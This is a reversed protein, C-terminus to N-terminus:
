RIEQSGGAPRVEAQSTDGEVGRAPPESPSDPLGPIKLHSRLYLGGAVSLHNSDLMLIDEGAIARCWSADCLAPLPSVVTFDYRSELSRFYDDIFQYRDRVSAVPQMVCRGADRRHFRAHAVCLPVNNTFEPVQGLIISTVKLKNLMALTQSLGGAADGGPRGLAKEIDLRHVVWRSALLVLRLSKQQVLWDSVRKNFQRCSQPISTDDVFPPCGPFGFVIGSVHNLEALISIAPIYNAAHSDGWLVLGYGGRNPQGLSCATGYRFGEVSIPNCYKELGAEALDIAVNQAALVSEDARSPFGLTFIFSAGALYLAGAAVAGKFLTITNSFSGRRFPTEVYRWSLYALVFSALVILLRLTLSLNDYVYLHAFSFLPWHVLYLSYSILGIFRFPGLGLTNSIRNDFTGAGIILAAGACPLLATMAPFPTSSDYLSVACVVAALGLAATLTAFRRFVILPPALSLAAGILLEWMRYYSVYFADKPHGELKLQALLLSVAALAVIATLVHKSPLVRAMVMLLLPWVAYFQEEVSLSWTHLLPKDIAPGEFYGVDKLLNFNQFFLITAELSKGFAILDRPILLFYAAVSCVALMACLAPFIRRVRRAYFGALSFHGRQLDRWIIGTILYGSIVFFIDVGVFGGSFGPLGAHYFVVSLVAIARLGDIDPRYSAGHNQFDQVARSQRM